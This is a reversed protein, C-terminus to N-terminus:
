NNLQKFSEVELISGVMAFSMVDDRITGTIEVKSKIDALEAPMNMLEYTEGSDTKLIWAGSGFEVRDVKGIVSFSM